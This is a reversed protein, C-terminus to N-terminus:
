DPPNTPIPGEDEVAPGIIVYQEPQNAWNIALRGLSLVVYGIVLIAAVALIVNRWRYHKLQSQLQGGDMHALLDSAFQEPTGFRRCLEDYGADPHEEAYSCLADELEPLLKARMAPVMALHMDVQQRYDQVARSELADIM